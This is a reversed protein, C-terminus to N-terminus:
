PKARESMKRGAVISGVTGILGLIFLLWTGALAVRVITLSQRTWLRSPEWEASRLAERGLEPCSAGYVLKADATCEYGTVVRFSGSPPEAVFYSYIVLYSIIGAFVMIMSAIIWSRRFRVKASRTWEWSVLASVVILAASLQGMAVPWPPQLEALTAIIPASAFAAGLGMVKALNKLYSDIM